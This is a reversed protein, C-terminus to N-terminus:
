KKKSIHHIIQLRNDEFIPYNQSNIRNSLETDEAVFNLKILQNFKKKGLEVFGVFEISNVNSINKIKKTFFNVPTLRLFCDDNIKYNYLVYKFFNKQVEVDDDLFIKIRSLNLNYLHNKIIIPSTNKKFFIKNIFLHSYKKLNKYSNEEIGLTLNPKIRNNKASKNLSDLLRSLELYRGKSVVFISVENGKKPMTNACIM